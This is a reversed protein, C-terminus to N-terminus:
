KRKQRRKRTTVAKKKKCLENMYHEVMKPKDLKIIKMPEWTTKVDDKWKVEIEWVGKFKRDSLLKEVEYTTEEEDKKRVEGKIKKVIEQRPRFM